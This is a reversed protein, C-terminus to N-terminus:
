SAADTMYISSNVPFDIGIGRLVELTHDCSIKSEKRPIYQVRGELYERIVNSHLELIPAIPLQSTKSAETLLFVWEKHSVKSVKRSANETNEFFSALPIIGPNVLHFTLDGAELSLGVMSRAVFDVPTVAFGVEDTCAGIEHCSRLLKSFWQGDPMRGTISDGTILGLRQIQVPLGKERANLMIKEGVWKSIAYGSSHMHKEEDISDNEYRKRSNSGSFVSVTSAYIIRKLRRDTSFKIIEINSGVNSPKLQEYSSMLDLRAALHYIFDIKGALEQYIAGIGLRRKEIDGPVSIIREEYSPSYLHYKKLQDIIREMGSSEDDARILCYIIAHTSYLLEKLLYIGVFGTVGTLFINKPEALYRPLQEIGSFLDTLTSEKSLDIETVAANPDLAHNALQEITPKTFVDKIKYKTNLSKNTSSLVAIALLSNGGLEFFNDHIGVREVGLLESWIAALERELETRPAVYEGSRGEGAEVVPLRRRDV